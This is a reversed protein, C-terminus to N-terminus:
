RGAGDRGADEIITPDHYVDDPNKWIQLPDNRDIIDAWAVADARGDMFVTNVVEAGHRDSIRSEGKGNRIGGGGLLRHDRGTPDLWVFRMDYLMLQRSPLKFNSIRYRPLDWTGGLIDRFPRMNGGYCLADRRWGNNVGSGIGLEPLYGAPWELM